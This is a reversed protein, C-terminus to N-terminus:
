LTEFIKKRVIEIFRECEQYYKATNFRIAAHDGGPDGTAISLKGSLFCVDLEISTIKAYVIHTMRYGFLVDAIKSGGEVLITLGYNTAIILVTPQWDDHKVIFNSKVDYGEREFCICDIINEGPAFFTDSTLMTKFVLPLYPTDNIIKEIQPNLSKIM